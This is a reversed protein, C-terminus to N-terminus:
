KSGETVMKYKINVSGHYVHEDLSLDNGYSSYRSSSEMLSKDKYIRGSRMEDEEVLINEVFSIPKLVIGLESEYVKQKARANALAMNM